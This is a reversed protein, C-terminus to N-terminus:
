FNLFFDLLGAFHFLVHPKLDRFFILFFFLLELPFILKVKLLLFRLHLFVEVLIEILLYPFLGGGNQLLPFKINLSFVPDLILFLDVFILLFHFVFVFLFYEM